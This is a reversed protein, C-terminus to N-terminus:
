RNLFDYHPQGCCDIYLSVITGCGVLCEIGADALIHLLVHGSMAVITIHSKTIASCAIFGSLNFCFKCFKTEINTITRVISTIFLCGDDIDDLNIPVELSLGNVQPLAM